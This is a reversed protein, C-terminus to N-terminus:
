QFTWKRHYQGQYQHCNSVSHLEVEFYPLLDTLTSSDQLLIFFSTNKNICHPYADPDSNRGSYKQPESQTPSSLRVLIRSFSLDYLPPFLLPFLFQSRLKSFDSEFRLHQCHFSALVTTQIPMPQGSILGDREGESLLQEIHKALHWHTYYKSTKGDGGGGSQM